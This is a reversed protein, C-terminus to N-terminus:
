GSTRPGGTMPWTEIPLGGAITPLRQNLIDVVSRFIRRAEFTIAGNNGCDAYLAVPTSHVEDLPALAFARAGWPSAQQPASGFSQVKSFCQALPSLPDTLTLRQGTSIEDGRAAIVVASTRDKSVVILASRQFTGNETLMALISCLLQERSSAAAAVADVRTVLANGAATRLTPQSPSPASPTSALPSKPPTHPVGLGFEPAAAPTTGRAGLVSLLDQQLSPDDSELLLSEQTQIVFDFEEDRTLPASPNLDSVSIKETHLKDAFLYDAAREYLKLYQSESLQLFRLSSKPPLQRGPAIKEWRQQDFADVLEVAAFCISKMPTRAANKPKGDRSTAFTISEPVGNRQLYTLGMKEVNFHHDQALRCVVTAPNCTDHLTVYAAGLHASALLEGTYMFLGATHCDEALGKAVLEAIMRAVIGARRSRSRHKEFIRASNPDELNPRSRLRALVKLLEQAGIRMIAASPTSVTPRGASFVADNALRLLELSLVPDQLACLALDNLKAVRSEALTAATSLITPHISFAREFPSVPRARSSSAAPDTNNNQSNPAVKQDHTM